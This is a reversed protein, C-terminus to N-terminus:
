RAQETWYRQRSRIQLDARKPVAVTIQHVGEAIRPEPFSLIYQSHVEVGLNEIAREIGREKLYPYDRGGTAEALQSVVSPEKLRAYYRAGFVEIGARTVADVVDDRVGSSGQDYGASIVLLVKRGERQRLRDAAEAIADFLHTELPSGNKISKFAYQIERADRTFEQLWRVERDFTVVAAEGRRGVVLPQIMSGVRRIEPLASAPVASSQVAVVLSIRAAGSDFVDATIERELGDDLLRFDRARLGEITRGDTATVSVPVQVLKSQARFPPDQAFVRVLCFVFGTFFLWVLRAM